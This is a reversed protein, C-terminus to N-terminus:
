GDFAQLVGTTWQWPSAPHESQPAYPARSALQSRGFASASQAARFSRRAVAVEAAAAVCLLVNPLLVQLWGTRLLGRLPVFSCQCM